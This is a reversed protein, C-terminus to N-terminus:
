KAEKEYMKQYEQQENEGTFSFWGVADRILSDSSASAANRKWAVVLGTSRDVLVMQNKSRLVVEEYKVYHHLKKACLPLAIILILASILGIKKVIAILSKKKM